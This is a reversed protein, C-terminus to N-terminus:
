GGNPLSVRNSERIRDQARESERRREALTRCSNSSFHSGVRKERRCVMRSDEAAATLTTNILEQDNFVQMRSEDSLASVGDQTALAAEIRELAARVNVRDQPSIEAYKKGSLGELIAAKQEAFAAAEFTVAEHSEASAAVPIMLASALLALRLLDRM